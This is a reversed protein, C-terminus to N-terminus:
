KRTELYGFKSFAQTLCALSVEQRIPIYPIQSMGETQLIFLKECYGEFNNNIYNIIKDIDAHLIHRYAFKAQTNSFTKPEKTEALFNSKMIENILSALTRQYYMPAHETYKIGFYAFPSVLFQSFDLFRVDILTKLEQSNIVAFSLKNFIDQNWTPDLSPRLSSRISSFIQDHQANNICLIDYTTAAIEPDIKYFSNVGPDKMLRDIINYFYKKNQTRSRGDCNKKIGLSSQIFSIKERLRLDEAHLDVQFKTTYDHINLKYLERSLTFEDMSLITLGNDDENFFFRVMKRIDNTDELQAKGLSNYRILIEHLILAARNKDDKLHRYLNNNILVRGYLYQIALQKKLYNNVIFGEDALEPLEAITTLIWEMKDLHEQLKKSLKPIKKSLTEFIPELYLSYESTEKIRLIENSGNKYISNLINITEKRPDSTEFLDLLVLEINTDTLFVGDGGNGTQPGAFVHAILFLSLILLFNKM